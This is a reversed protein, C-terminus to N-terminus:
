SREQILYDFVDALLKAQKWQKSQPESYTMIDNYRYKLSTLIELQTLSDNEAFQLSEYLWKTSQLYYSVMTNHDGNYYKYALAYCHFDEALLSALAKKKYCDYADLRTQIIIDKEKSTVLNQDAISAEAIENRLSQDALQDFINPYQQNIQENVCANVKVAAQEVTWDAQIANEGDMFLLETREKESISWDATPEELRMRRAKEIRKEEPTLSDENDDASVRAPTTVPQEIAKSVPRSETFATASSNASEPTYAENKINGTEAVPNTQNEDNASSEATPLHDLPVDETQSVMPEYTVFANVASCVRAGVHFHAWATSSFIGLILFICFIIEASGLTLRRLIKACEPLYEWWFPFRTKLTKYDSDAACQKKLSSYIEKVFFAALGYLSVLLTSFLGPIFDLALELLIGLLVVVFAGFTIARQKSRRKSKKTRLKQLDAQQSGSRNITNVKREPTRM